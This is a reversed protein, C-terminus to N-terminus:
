EEEGYRKWRAQCDSPYTRRKRLCVSVIHFCVKSVSSFRLKGDDGIKEEM